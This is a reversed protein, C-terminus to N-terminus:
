SDWKSGERGNVVLQNCEEATLGVLNFDRSWDNWERYTFTGDGTSYCRSSSTCASLLSAVVAVLILTAILTRKM